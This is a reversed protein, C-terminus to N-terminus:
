RSTLAEAVRSSDVSQKKQQNAYFQLQDNEKLVVMKTNGLALLFHLNHKKTM